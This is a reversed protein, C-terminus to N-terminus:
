LTEWWYRANETECTADLGLSLRGIMIVGGSMGCRKEWADLMEKLHKYKQSVSKASGDESSSEDYLTASKAVRVQLVFVVDIDLPDGCGCVTTLARDHLKQLLVDSVDYCPSGDAKTCTDGSMSRIYEIEDETLTAM